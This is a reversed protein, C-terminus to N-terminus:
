SCRFYRGRTLGSALGVLGGQIGALTGLTSKAASKGYKSRVAKIGGKTGEQMRVKNNAEAAKKASNTSSTLKKLAATVASGIAVTEFTGITEANNFGFMKRIIKEGQSIFGIAIIGYLPFAEVLSLASGVLTYYVVLHVIQILANFVYERIWMTFAQAKSDKIKDLPYTLTVLPAIITFFAMYLVRKIYQVTFMITLVTIVTYMISQAVVEEWTKGNEIQTRLSNLITDTTGNNLVKSVNQVIVLITNMLYHLTFLLCIAVLWDTLMKKYKSNEKGTVSTLVIQIGIYVLVSLLGVLAIKRLAKYWTAVTDQLVYAISGYRTTNTQELFEENMEYSYEGYGYFTQGSVDDYNEDFCYVYLFDNDVKYCVLFETKVDNIEYTEVFRDIGKIKDSELFEYYEEEECPEAQSSFTKRNERVWDEVGFDEKTNPNIFNIDFAPVTGSFIVAPSYQFNYTGDDQEISDPSIFSNQMFQMLNDCIYVLLKSIPAFITGSDVAGYAVNPIIFNCLMIIFIICIIQKTKRQTKKRKM